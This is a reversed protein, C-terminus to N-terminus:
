FKPILFYARLYGTFSQLLGGGGSGWGVIGGKNCWAGSNVWGVNMGGELLELSNFLNNFFPQHYVEEAM